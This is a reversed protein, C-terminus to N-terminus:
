SSRPASWRCGRARGQRAGDRTGAAFARFGHRLDAGRHPDVVKYRFGRGKFVKELIHELPAATEHVSVDGLPMQSLASEYSFLVGTQSTVAETFTLVTASGLTLDVAYTKQPSANRGTM